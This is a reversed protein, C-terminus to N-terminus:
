EAVKRPARLPKRAEDFALEALTIETLFDRLRHHVKHISRQIPCRGTVACRPNKRSLATCRVLQVPGEVAEIFEALDIKEPPLALSYGGRVGRQSRVLGAQNLKKLINMLLPLPVGHSEHIDRASIVAGNEARALHCAAILAYETKRTLSLM